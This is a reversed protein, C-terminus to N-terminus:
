CPANPRCGPRPGYPRGYATTVPKDTKEGNISDAKTAVSQTLAIANLVLFLTTILYM